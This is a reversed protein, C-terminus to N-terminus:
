GGGMGALMDDANPVAAIAKKRKSTASAAEASMRGARVALIAERMEDQTLTGDAAKQRWLAIKSQLELSQAEPM